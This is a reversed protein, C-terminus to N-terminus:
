GILYPVLAIAVALVALLYKDAGLSVKRYEDTHYDRSHLHQGWRRTLWRGGFARVLAALCCPLSLAAVAPPPHGVCLLVVTAATCACAFWAQRVWYWAGYRNRAIRERRAPHPDVYTLTEGCVPCETPEDVLSECRPCQKM